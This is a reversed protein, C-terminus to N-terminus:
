EEGEIVHEIFFVFLTFPALAILTVTTGWIAVPHCRHFAGSRHARIMQAAVVLACCVWVVLWFAAPM